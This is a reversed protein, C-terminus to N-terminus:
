RAAALFTAPSLIEVGRFPNLVLLDSDGSVIHTAHGSIALELFKNDKPDRCANVEAVVDVWEAERTLATLFSRVGEDDIYRRFKTRSLVDHLETLVSLSLLLVGQNRAKDFARRPTSDILLLASIIVNTDFVCRM